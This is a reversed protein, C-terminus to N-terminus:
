GQAVALDVLRAVDDAAELDDVLAIMREVADDALPTAGARCNIRFKDLHAARTMPKAPNGYVVDLTIDHKVGDRLAVEVSVPTLANDDPNDDAIVEIRRGLALRDPDRIAEPRFDDVGVTGRLLAVAMVYPASLRAYNVAMEDKIPRGVLRHTLPPVRAEIREVDAAAFSHARQLELVGDIVGHTARGSPFPKHAVEAIRWVKGLNPLIDSLDYDGEFLPYFGFPGELINQPGVLGQAAMDCAYIANRANFGIQMGLLMSGETHAQMTGCSQSYTIGFANVLTAADFGMLKGIAATAAFGGATAPRFFKLGAKSGVGIHCAVDVGLALAAILAKGDVGGAREVHAMTASLLVAMPHVVAQEHVCDFESNHIQYANCMAAAPAPLRAGRVWVRAQEGAGWGGQCDVLEAVWPGASGAIGVGLSDLLFTKTARVADAPLDDYGTAVVHEAFKAIADM